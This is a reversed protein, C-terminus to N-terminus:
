RVDAMNSNSITPFPVILIGYYGVREVAIDHTNHATTHWPDAAEKQLTFPLSCPTIYKCVNNIRTRRNFVKLGVTQCVRREAWVTYKHIKYPDSFL